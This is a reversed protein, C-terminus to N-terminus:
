AERSKEEAGLAERRPEPRESPPPMPPENDGFVAPRTARLPVPRTAEQPRAMAPAYDREQELRDSPVVRPMAPADERRRLGPSIAAEVVLDQGGGGVLVLHEVNDRRLLILRRNKDIDLSEVVGLRSSEAGGSRGALARFLITIVFLV